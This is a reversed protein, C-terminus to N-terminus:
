AAAGQLFPAFLPFLVQPALPLTPQELILDCVQKLQFLGRLDDFGVDLDPPDQISVLLLQWTLLPLLVM